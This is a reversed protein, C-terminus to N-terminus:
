YLRGYLSFVSAIRSIDIQSQRTSFIVRLLELAWDEPLPCNKPTKNRAAHM